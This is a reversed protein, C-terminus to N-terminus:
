WVTTRPILKRDPDDPVILLHKGRRQDICRSRRSAHIRRGRPLLNPRWRQCIRYTADYRRKVPYTRPIDLQQGHNDSNIFLLGVRSIIQHPINVFASQQDVSSSQEVM